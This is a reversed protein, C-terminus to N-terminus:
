CLAPSPRGPGSESPTPGAPGHGREFDLLHRKRDLGGGYGTLGGDRGDVRHCPVVISVPNRGNSPGATRSTAPRGIRTAPEGYSTTEGCPITTSPRRVTQQLPTGCWAPPLDFETLSGAFYAEVQAIVAHSPREDREGFTNWPPQHRHETLYLAAVRAVLALEGVPSDVTTPATTTM